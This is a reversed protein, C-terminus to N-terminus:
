GALIEPDQNAQKIIQKEYIELLRRAPGSPKNIGYEWAEVTKKTVGMRIAMIEQTWEMSKRINKIDAPSYEKLPEDPISLTRRKATGSKGEKIACKINEQLHLFFDSHKARNGM